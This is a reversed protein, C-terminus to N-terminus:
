PLTVKTIRHRAERPTLKARYKTSLTRRLAQLDRPAVYLWRADAECLEEWRVWRKGLATATRECLAALEDSTRRFGFGGRGPLDEDPDAEVMGSNYNFDWARFRGANTLGLAQMQHVDFDLMYFQNRVHGRGESELFVGLSGASFRVTQSGTEGAYGLAPVHRHGHLFLWDSHHEELTRLLKEGGDMFSTDRRDLHTWVVPHHHCLLINIPRQDTGVATVMNDLTQDDVSGHAYQGRQDHRACSNLAVVRWSTEDIITFDEGFYEAAQNTERSPFVPTLTQLDRAWTMEEANAPLDEYRLVDHNGATAIVHQAGLLTAIEDVQRWAYELGAPEMRNTLDGPCLVADARLGEDQILRKVAALPNRKPDSETQQRARSEEKHTRASVAHVDSLVAFRIPPAPPTAGSLEM